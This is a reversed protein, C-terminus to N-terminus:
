GPSIHSWAARLLGLGKSPAVGRGCMYCIFMFFATKSPAGWAAPSHQTVWTLPLVVTWLAYFAVGIAMAYNLAKSRPGDKAIGYVTAIAFGFLWIGWLRMGLPNSRLADYLSSAYATEPSTIMGAGDYMAVLALGWAVTKVAIVKGPPHTM